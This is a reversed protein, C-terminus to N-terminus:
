GRRDERVVLWGLAFGGIVVVGTLVMQAAEFFKEYERAAARRIAAGPELDLKEGTRPPAAIAILVILFAAVAIVVSLRLWRNPRAGGPL